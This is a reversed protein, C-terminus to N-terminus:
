SQCVTCRSFVTNITKMCNPKASLSVALLRALDQELHKTAFNARAVESGM